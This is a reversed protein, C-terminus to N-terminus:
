PASGKKLPQGLLKRLTKNSQKRYSVDSIRWGQAQKAVTFTILTEADSVPDKFRVEVTNPTAIAITLDTVQPDQSDFLIDFDLHCIEQTRRQCAADDALLRTLTPDFYQSLTAAPQDVLTEGFLKNDDSLAQWAFAKYLAAVPARVDQASAPYAPLAVLLATLMMPRVGKVAARAFLVPKAAVSKLYANM